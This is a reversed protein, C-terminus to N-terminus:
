YPFQINRITDRIQSLRYHNKQKRTKVDDELKDIEIAELMAECLETTALEVEKKTPKM